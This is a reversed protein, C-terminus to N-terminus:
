PTRVNEAEKEATETGVGVSHMDTCISSMDAPNRCGDPEDPHGRTSRSPLDPPKDKKQLISINEPKNAPKIVDMNVSPTDTLGNLVDTHSGIGDTKRIDRKVGRTTLYTGMDDRHSIGDTEARDSVNLADTWVRLDDVQNWLMDTRHGPGDVDGLWMQTGGLCICPIRGGDPGELEISIIVLTELKNSSGAPEVEQGTGSNPSKMEASLYVTWEGKLPLRHASPLDGTTNGNCQHREECYLEAKPLRLDKCETGDGEDIVHAREVLEGGLVAKEDIDVIKTPEALGVMGNTCGAMVMSDVVEQKCENPEGEIPLRLTLPLSNQLWNQMEHLLASKLMVPTMEAHKASTGEVM